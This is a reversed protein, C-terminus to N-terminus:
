IQFALLMLMKLEDMGRWAWLGSSLLLTDHPNKITEVTSESVLMNVIFDTFNRNLQGFYKLDNYKKM